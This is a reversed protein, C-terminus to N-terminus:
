SSAAILAAVEAADPMAPLAGLRQVCLAAAACARRLREAEPLDALLAAAYSGTCCDGAGTTDVVTVPFAAQSLTPSGERVLLCGHAGRKVLITPCGRGILVRAAVEAEAATTAPLGTLRELETENPSFVALCAILAQSLPEDSGGADLIVPVGCRQAIQAAALNVTEPIERQLLLCGASQIAQILAPALEAPWAHNAGPVLVISNEGGDQLLIIAQGTPGTVTSLLGLDAGCGALATRLPAAFADDGLCGAFRVPCGQRAAAAAQNAGKGGPRVAADHGAITEGPRPLRSIAVYLDANISGLVLLQRM